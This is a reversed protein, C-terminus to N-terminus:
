LDEPRMEARISPRPAKMPLQPVARGHASLLHQAHARHLRQATECVTDHPTCMHRLFMSQGSSAQPSPSCGRVQGHSQQRFMTKIHWCRIQQESGLWGAGDKEM